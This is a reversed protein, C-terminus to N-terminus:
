EFKFDAKGSKGIIGHWVGLYYYFFAKKTLKSLWKFKVPILLIDLILNGFFYGYYGNAKLIIYKNRTQYYYQLNIRFETRQNVEHFHWVQAAKLAIFKIENKKSKIAFDLEDGYMFLKENFLGIRDYIAMPVFSACGDLSDCVYQDPLKNIDCENNYMFETKLAKNIYNGFSQVRDLQNEKKGKFILPTVCINNLNKKSFKVLNMVCNADLETDTNLIFLYECLEEKAYKALLNNGGAYGTNNESKYLMINPNEQKKVIEYSDDTSNNDLVFVIINEYTQNKISSFLRIIHQADNFLVILIAVKGEM